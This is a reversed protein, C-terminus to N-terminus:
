GTITKRPKRRRVQSSAAARVRDIVAGGLDHGADGERTIVPIDGFLARDRTDLDGVVVVNCKFANADTELGRAYMALELHNPARGLIREIDLAEDDTLGLARHVPETM